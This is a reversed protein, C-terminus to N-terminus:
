LTQDDQLMSYTTDGSQAGQRPGSGPVAATKTQAGLEAARGPDNESGINIQSQDAEGEFGGETINKGKPKAANFPQTVDSVYGPANRESGSSSGGVGTDSSALNQGSTTNASPNTQGSASHAQGSYSIQDANGGGAEGSSFAGGSVGSSKSEMERKAGTPGGAYSGGAHSGPFSGQGGAGEPYKEDRGTENWVDDRQIKNDAPALTTAGSTDTNNLTSKNGEVALPESDRNSQFSGGTRASEAALSDKAVAGAGENTSM